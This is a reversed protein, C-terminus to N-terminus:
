RPPPVATCCAVPWASLASSISSYRRATDRSGSCSLIRGVALAANLVEVPELVEAELELAAVVRFLGDIWGLVWPSINVPFSFTHGNLPCATGAGRPWLTGTLPSVPLSPM